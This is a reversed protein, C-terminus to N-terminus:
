VGLSASRSLYMAARTVLVFEIPEFDTKVAVLESIRPAGLSRFRPENGAGPTAPTLGITPVATLAGLASQTPDGAGVLSYWHYLQASLIRVVSLSRDSM